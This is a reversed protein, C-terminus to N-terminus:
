QDDPTPTFASFQRGTVATPRLRYFEMTFEDPPTDPYVNLTPISANEAIATAAKPENGEPVSEVPGQVLVSQAPQEDYVTFSATDTTELLAMKKSGSTFVFQFYLTEGDYGFSEPISYAESGNTLALVGVGSECLLLDIEERSLETAM